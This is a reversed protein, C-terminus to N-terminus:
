GLLCLACPPRESMLIGWSSPTERPVSPFLHSMGRYGRGESPRAWSPIAALNVMSSREVITNPGSAPPNTELTLRNYLTRHIFFYINYFSISHLTIKMLTCGNRLQRGDTVHRHTHWASLVWCKGLWLRKFCKKSQIYRDITRCM